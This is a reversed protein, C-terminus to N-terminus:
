FYIQLNFMKQRQDFMMKEVASRTESDLDSLKSPAPEVKQTDIEQGGKLLSRWWDTRDRKSMLISISKQDELSWFCDDAKV